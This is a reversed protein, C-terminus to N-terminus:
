PNALAAVAQLALRTTAAGFSPDIHKFNDQDSHGWRDAHYMNDKEILLVAPIGVDLLPIHDSGFGAYNVVFGDVGDKSSAGVAGRLAASLNGQTGAAAYALTDVVM